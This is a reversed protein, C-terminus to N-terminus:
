HALWKSESALLCLKVFFNLMCSKVPISNLPLIQLIYLQPFANWFKGSPGTREDFNFWCALQLGALQLIQNHYHSLPAPLITSCFSFEIKATWKKLFNQQYIGPCNSFLKLGNGKKLWVVERRVTNASSGLFKPHFNTM